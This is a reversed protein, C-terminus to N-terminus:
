AWLVCPGLGSSHFGGAEQQPAENHCQPHPHQSPGTQGGGSSLQPGGLVERVVPDSLGACVLWTWLLITPNTHCCPRPHTGRRPM